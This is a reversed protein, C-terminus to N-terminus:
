ENLTPRLVAILFHAFHSADDDMQLWRVVCHELLYKGVRTEPIGLHEALRPKLSDGRRATGGRLL